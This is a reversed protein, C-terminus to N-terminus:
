IYAYKTNFIYASFCISITYLYKVEFDFLTMRIIYSFLFYKYM